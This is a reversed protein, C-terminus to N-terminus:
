GGVLSTVRITKSDPIEAHSLVKLQPIARRLFRALLVRLASPVILVPPLGMQEQQRTALDVQTALTDALGPEIGAGEAGGTNFAQM